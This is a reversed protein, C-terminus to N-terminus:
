GGFHTEGSQRNVHVSGHEGHELTTHGPKHKKAKKWGDSELNGVMWEHPNMKETVPGRQVRIPTRKLVDLVQVIKINQPYKDVLAKALDIAKQFKVPTNAMGLYYALRKLGTGFSSSDKTPDYTGPIGGGPVEYTSQGGSFTEPQPEAFAAEKLYQEIKKDVSM